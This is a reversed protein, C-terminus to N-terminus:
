TRQNRAQNRRPTGRLAEAHRIGGELAELQVERVRTRRQAGRIAYRMLHEVEIARIPQAYQRVAVKWHVGEDAAPHEEGDNRSGHRGAITRDKSHRSDPRVVQAALQRYPASLAAAARRTGTVARPTGTFLVGSPREFHEARRGDSAHVHGDRRGPEGAMPHGLHHRRPSCMCAPSVM